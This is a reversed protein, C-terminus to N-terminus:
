ARDASRQQCAPQEPRGVARARQSPGPQGRGVRRRRLGVPVRQALLQGGALQVQWALGAVVEGFLEEARLPVRQLRRANGVALAVGVDRGADREHDLELQGDPHAGAAVAVPAPGADAVPEDEVDRFHVRHLEPGVRDGDAGADVEDVEVAAQGRLALRHWAAGARRHSDGPEGEAAPDAGQAPEVAQGTVIEPGKIDHRGVADRPGARRAAVGVQVPGAAPAAAAAEADGCREGESSM